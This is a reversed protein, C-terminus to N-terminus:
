GWVGMSSRNLARMRRISYEGFWTKVVLISNNECPTRSRPRERPERGGRGSAQTRCHARARDVGADHKPKLLQDGLDVGLHRECYSRMAVSREKDVDGHDFNMFLGVYGHLFNTSDVWALV